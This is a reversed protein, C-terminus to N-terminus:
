AGPTPTSDQENLPGLIRMAEPILYALELDIRVDRLYDPTTEIFNVDTRNLPFVAHTAVIVQVGQAVAKDILRWLGLESRLDLSRSPEDLLLTPREKEGTGALFTELWASEESQMSVRYEREPWKNKLIADLVPRMRNGTTQGSSGKFMCNMLGEDMFDYDFSGGFLGVTAGPDFYLIPSGDHDPLVGDRREKYPFLERLAEGTVKQWGGQHCCLMKAIAALLTSKGSGNRGYLCNLGPKFDLKTIDKTGTAKDWWPVVCKTKDTVIISRIM